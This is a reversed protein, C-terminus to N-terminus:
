KLEKYISPILGKHSSYIAFKKEWDIPQRNVRIIIEKTMCVGKSNALPIEGPHRKRHLVNLASNKGKTHSLFSLLLPRLTSDWRERARLLEQRQMQSGPEGEPNFSAATLASPLLELCPQGVHYFGMEVLFVFMLWTHHHVGTTEAVQSASAPSNSSGLCFLKCHDLIVVSWGTCHLSIENNVMKLLYTQHLNHRTKLCELNKLRSNHTMGTIEASQSASAPLDRSTLLELGAQGVHHFWM